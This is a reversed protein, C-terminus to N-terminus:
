GSTRSPRVTRARRWGVLTSTVIGAVYWWAVSENGALWAVGSSQNDVSPLSSPSTSMAMVAGTWKGALMKMPYEGRGLISIPDFVYVFGDRPAPGAYVVFHERLGGAPGGATHVQLIAVTKCRPLNAPTMQLCRVSLGKAEAFHRLVEFSLPSGDELKCLEELCLGFERLTPPIPRGSSKLEQLMFLTM